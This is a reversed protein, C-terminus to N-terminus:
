DFLIREKEGDQDILTLATYYNKNRRLNNSREEADNIDKIENDNIAILLKGELNYNRYSQSAAVIKVGTKRKYNKQDDETLDRVRLGLNRLDVTM